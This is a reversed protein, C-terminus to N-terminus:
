KIIKVIGKDADVELLDGDHLVQTAIKTGIICPKKLERAIIAAHCTIGGEDTVFAGAKKMAVVFSPFTMQAVLIDGEKVKEIDEVRKVIKCIGKANGKYAVNGKIIKKNEIIEINIIPKNSYVSKGKFNACAFDMNLRKPKGEILSDITFYKLDKFKIGYEKGIEKLIPRAIFLLEFFVDTRATRFYVLEGVENFLKELPKPIVIKNEEAIKKDNKKLNKKINLIDKKTFPDDFANRVRIWSYKKLINEVKEGRIIEEEMLTHANKKTPFSADGIFKDVDKKIYKGVEKKLINNYYVEIGHAAWIYTTVLTLLDSIKELKKKPDIKEDILKIIIKKSQNRFKELSYTIDFITNKKFYKKLGKEMKRFVEENRYWIENQYLFAEGEVNDIGIKEFSEKTSGKEFISLLFPNYPRQLWQEWKLSTIKDLIQKEDM